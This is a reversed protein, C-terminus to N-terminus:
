RWDNRQKREASLGMKMRTKLMKPDINSFFQDLNKAMLYDENPKQKVDTLLEGVKGVGKKVISVATGVTGDVMFKTAGKILGLSQSIFETKQASLDAVTDVVFNPDLARISAEWKKDSEWAHMRVIRLAQIWDDREQSSKAKFRHLRGGDVLIQFINIGDQTISLMDKFIIHRHVNGTEFDKESSSYGFCRGNDFIKCYRTQFMWMKPHLKGLHGEKKMAEVVQPDPKLLESM